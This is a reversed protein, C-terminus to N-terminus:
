KKKLLSLRSITNTVPNKKGNSIDVGRNILDFSQEINNFNSFTYLPKSHIKFLTRIIISNNNKSIKMSLIDSIPIVVSQNYYVISNFCIYNNTLYLIGFSLNQYSCPIQHIIEENEDINFLSKLNINKM